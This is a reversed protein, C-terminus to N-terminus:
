NKPQQQQQKEDWRKLTITFADILNELSFLTVKDENYTAKMNELGVIVSPILHIVKLKDHRNYNKLNGHDFGYLFTNVQDLYRKIIEIIRERSDGAAWRVLSQLVKIRNDKILYNKKKDTYQIYLKEHIQLRSISKLNILLDELEEKERNERTMLKISDTTTGSLSTSTSM